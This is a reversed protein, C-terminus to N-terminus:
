IYLRRRSLYQEINCCRYFETPENGEKIWEEYKSILDEDYLKLCRALEKKGGDFTVTKTIRRRSAGSGINVIFRYKTRGLQEIM